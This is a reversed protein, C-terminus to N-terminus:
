PFGRFFNDIPQSIKTLSFFHLKTTVRISFKIRGKVSPLYAYKENLVIDSLTM